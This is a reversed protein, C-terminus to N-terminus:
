IAAGIATILATVRTDLAALDLSEGISYFAIRADTFVAPTPGRAFVHVDSGTAAASAQSHTTTSGGVRALYETSSSRSFGHFGTTDAGGPIANFTGSPNRCATIFAGSSASAAIVMQNYGASGSGDSGIYVAPDNTNAATIYLANHNDNQPDANNDRNTNLSTTSGDGVLGTERNYDSATFNNNTPAAGVLPVLAGALTRAGALICSAKISDWIGDSKCGTVFADVANAVGVEVGTGDAAAVAALYTLADADTPVAQSGFGPFSAAYPHDYPLQSQLGWKWALYGEIKQRETTPLARQYVVVESFFGNLGEAGALNGAIAVGTSDTDSTTGATQFSTNSATLTGSEYLFLDANAYDAVVSSVLPNTTRLNDGTSAFSDADLRRGGATKQTGFNRVSLRTLGGGTSAFFLTVNSAIVDEKVVAFVTLGSVNRTLNLTASNGTLFDNGDFDLVRLGNQTRSNGDPQSGATAQSFHRGSGSLDRWESVTDGNFTLSSTVSADLWLGLGAISKPNFGSALPRLLRPNM